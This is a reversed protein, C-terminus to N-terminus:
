STFSLSVHNKHTMRPNPPSPEDSIVSCPIYPDNLSVLYPRNTRVRLPFLPRLPIAYTDEFPFETLPPNREQHLRTTINILRSMYLRHDTFFRQVTFYRLRRPPTARHLPTTSRLPVM